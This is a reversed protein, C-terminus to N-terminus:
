RERGRLLDRLIHVPTSREHHPPKQANRALVGIAAFVRRRRRGWRAVWVGLWSASVFRCSTGRRCGAPSDIAFKCQAPFGVERSRPATRCCPPASNAIRPPRRLATSCAVWLAICGGLGCHEGHMRRPVDRNAVPSKRQLGREGRGVCGGGVWWWCGGASPGSSWGDWGSLCRM